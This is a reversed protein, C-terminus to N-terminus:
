ESANLRGGSGTIKFKRRLFLVVGFVMQGLSWIVLLCAEATGESQLQALKSHKYTYIHIYTQIYIYTYIVDVFLLFLCQEMNVTSYSDWVLSSAPSDGYTIGRAWLGSEVRFCASM